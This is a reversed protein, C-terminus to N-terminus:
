ISTRGPGFSTSASGAIVKSSPFPAGNYPSDDFPIGIVSHILGLYALVSHFALVVLVVVGRLNRLALRGEEVAAGGDAERDDLKALHGLGITEECDSARRLFKDGGGTM